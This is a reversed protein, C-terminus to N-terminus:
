KRRRLQVRAFPQMDDGRQADMTWRWTDTGKEYIFTTHFPGGDMDFVFPLTNGKRVAYGLPRFGSSGTIDLWLCAYRELEPDWGIHVYAEYQPNGTSDLERSIEHIRVYQHALIWEIELDHTIEQGAITGTMVWSGIKHDLLPDQFTTQQAMAPTGLSLLLALGMTIRHNRM